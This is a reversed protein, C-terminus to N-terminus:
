NTSKLFQRKVPALIINPTRVYIHKKNHFESIDLSGGNQRLLRYDPAEYLFDENPYIISYMYRLMQESDMYLSDRYRYSLTHHRKLEALACECSCMCGDLYFIIIPEGIDFHGIEMKIPIGVSSHSFSIRCWDCIGGPPILGGNRNFLLYHLHSTSAVTQTLNGKTRFTYLDSEPDTGLNSQISPTILNLHIKEKPLTIHCYKGSKYNELIKSPDLHRLLFTPNVSLIPSPTSM